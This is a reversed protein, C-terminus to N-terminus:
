WTASVNDRTVFPVQCMAVFVNKCFIFIFFYFFWLTVRSMSNVVNILKKEQFLGSQPVKEFHPRLQCKKERPYWISVSRGFHTGDLYNFRFFLLCSIIDKVCLYITSRGLLNWFFVLIDLIKYNTMIVWCLLLM